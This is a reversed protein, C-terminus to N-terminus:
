WKRRRFVFVEADGFGGAKKGWYESGIAQASDTLLPLSYRKSLQELEYYRPPVGFVSMAVIGGTTPGIEQEAKVLDITWTCPECDVFVPQLGTGVTAHATMASSHSPLIVEGKMELAKMYLILGSARNSVAVVHKVVLYSRAAEELRECCHGPTSILSDSLEALAEAFGEQERGHRCSMKVNM